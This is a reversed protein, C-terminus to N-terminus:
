SHLVHTYKTSYRERQPTLTQAHTRALTQLVGHLKEYITDVVFISVISVFTVIYVFPSTQKESRGINASFLVSTFLLFCTTQWRQGQGGIRAERVDNSRGRECHGGNGGM